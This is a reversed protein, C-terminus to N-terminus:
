LFQNAYEIYEAAVTNAILAASEATRSLVKIYVINSGRPIYLYISDKLNEIAEELPDVNSGAINLLYKINNKMKTVFNAKRKKIKYLNLKKVVKELILRSKIVNTQNSLFSRGAIENMYPVEIKPLTPVSIYISTYAEWVTPLLKVGILVVSFVSLFGITVILKRNFIIELLNSLPDKQNDHGAM